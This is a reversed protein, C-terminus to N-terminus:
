LKLWFYLDSTIINMAKDKFVVLVRHSYKGYTSIINLMNFLKVVLTRVLRNYEGLRVRGQEFVVCRKIIRAERFVYMVFNFQHQPYALFSFVDLFFKSM